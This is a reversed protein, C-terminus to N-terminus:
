KEPPLLALIAKVDGNQEETGQADKLYRRAQTPNEDLAYYIGGLYNFSFKQDDTYGSAFLERTQRAQSSFELMRTDDTAKRLLVACQALNVDLNKPENKFAVSINQEVDDWHNQLEETRAAMLRWRASERRQLAAKLVNEADAYKKEQMYFVALYEVVNPDDPLLAHARVLAARGQEPSLLMGRLIGLSLASEGAVAHNAASTLKELRAMLDRETKQDAESLHRM